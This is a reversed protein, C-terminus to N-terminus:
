PRSPYSSTAGNTPAPQTCETDKGTAAAKDSALENIENTTQAKAPSDNRQQRRELLACAEALSTRQFRTLPVDGRAARDALLRAWALGDAPPTRLQVALARLAPVARAAAAAASEGARPNPLAPPRWVQVPEHWELCTRHFGVVTPPFDAPLNKLGHLLQPETLGDLEAAWHQRIVEVPYPEFAAALRKPGYVLGLRLFVTELLRPDLM